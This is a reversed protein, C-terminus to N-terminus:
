LDIFNIKEIIKDGKLEYNLDAVKKGSKDWFLWPGIKIGNFRQQLPLQHIPIKTKINSYNISQRDELFSGEAKKINNPYWFTWQGIEAHNLKTGESKIQGNEYFSRIKKKNFLSDVKFSEMKLQTNPFYESHRVLEGEKNFYSETFIDGSTSIFEKKEITGEKSFYEWENVKKGFQYEGKSSLVGNPHYKKWTNIKLGNEDYNGEEKIIGNEFFYIARGFPQNNKYFIRKVTDGSLSFYNWQGSKTYETILGESEKEGNEFYNTEYQNVGDIIQVKKPFGNDWNDIIHENSPNCGFLFFITMLHVLKNM